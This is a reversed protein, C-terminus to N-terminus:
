NGARTDKRSEITQTLITFGTPKVIEVTLTKDFGRVPFTLTASQGPQLDPIRM